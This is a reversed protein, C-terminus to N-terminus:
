EDSPKNLKIVQITNKYLSIAIENSNLWWGPVIFAFDNEKARIITSISKPLNINTKGFKFWYTKKWEFDLLPKSFVRMVYEDNPEYTKKEM